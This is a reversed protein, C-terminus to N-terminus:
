CPSQPATWPCSRPLLVRPRGSSWLPPPGAGRAAGEGPLRPLGPAEGPARRGEQLGRCLLGGALGAPPLLQAQLDQLLHLHSGPPGQPCISAQAMCTVRARRANCGRWHTCPPRLAPTQARGGPARGPAGAVRVSPVWPSSPTGLPLAPARSRTHPLLPSPDGTLGEGGLAGPRPKHPTHPALVPWSLPGSCTWCQGGGRGKNVGGAPQPGRSGGQGGAARGWGVPRASVTKGRTGAGARPRGGGWGGAGGSVGAGKGHGTQAGSGKEARAQAKGAARARAEDEDPDAPVQVLHQQHPGAPLAPLRPPQLLVPLHVPVAACLGGPLRRQPSLATLQWSAARSGWDRRGPTPACPRM